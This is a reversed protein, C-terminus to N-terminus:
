SEAAARRLFDEEGWGYYDKLRKGFERIKYPYLTPDPHATSFSILLLISGALNHMRKHFTISQHLFSLIVSRSKEVHPFM